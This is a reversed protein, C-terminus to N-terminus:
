CGKFDIDKKLLVYEYRRVALERYYAGTIKGEHILASISTCGNKYLEQRVLEALASGLGLSDPRVGMYLLVYGGPNRKIKLIKILKGLTVNGATLSGYDPICIFFAALKGEKSVLKVMEPRLVPKLSSFLARFQEYTVYKYGPFDAYLSILLEYIAQLTEYFDHGYLTSFEYGAEKFQEIRRIFRERGDENRIKRMGNSFYRDCVSFGSQEWLYPYYARNYPEGTYANGFYNTKFRYGIWISCDVPGLLHKIGCAMATREVHAFVLRCVKVSKVSEFYGVYATTDGPYITLLCRCLPKRKEDAVVFPIVRFDPSLPHHGELLKKETEKNQPLLKKPYLREPLALFLGRVEKRNGRMCIYKEYTLM